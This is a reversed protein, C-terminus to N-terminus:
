KFLKESVGYKGSWGIWPVDTHNFSHRVVSWKGTSDKKLLGVANNELEDKAAYAKYKTRSWDVKKDNALQLSCHIFAWDGMMKLQHIVLVIDQGNAEKAM